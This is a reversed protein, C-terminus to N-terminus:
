PDARKPIQRIDANAALRFKGLDEYTEVTARVAPAAADERLLEYRVSLIPVGQPITACAARLAQARARAQAEEASITVAIGEVETVTQWQASLGGLTFPRSATQECESFDHDLSGFLTYSEEQVTVILAARSRGTPRSETVGTASYGMGSYWVSGRVVGSAAVQYRAGESGDSEALTVEGSILVEGQKVATDAAVAGQGKFVLFERVFGDKVAVIDGPQSLPDRAQVRPVLTVAVSVGRKEFGVWVLEPEQRLIEDAAAKYDPRGACVTPRIGFEAAIALVRAEDVGEAGETVRVTLISQSFLFLLLVCVLALIAAARQKKLGRALAPLGKEEAVTFRCGTAHGIQRLAKLDALAVCAAFGDAEGRIDWLLVNREMALNAFREVEGGRIRIRCYGPLYRGFGATM